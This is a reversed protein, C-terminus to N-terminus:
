KGTLQIIIRRSRARNDFDIFIIQQWTGLLLKNNLFPVTLSAGQLAARVHSYGNGDHWTNDHQYNIGKSPIISEYFAPYDKLLGPEYEITTVGATSGGAFVIVNGESLGSESIIGQVERTIDRIDTRGSTEINIFHTQIEMIRCM